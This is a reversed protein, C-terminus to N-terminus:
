PCPPRTRVTIDGLRYVGDSESVARHQGIMVLDPHRQVTEFM